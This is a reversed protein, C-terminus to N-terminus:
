NLRFGTVRYSVMCRMQHSEAAGSSAVEFPARESADRCAVAAQRLAAGHRPALTARPVAFLICVFRKDLSWVM